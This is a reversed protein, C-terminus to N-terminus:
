SIHKIIHKLIKNILFVCDIILITCELNSILNNIEINSKKIIIAKTTTDVIKINNKNIFKIFNKIITYHWSKFDLRSLYKLFIDFYFVDLKNYYIIFTIIKNYLTEINSYHAEIIFRKIKCLCIYYHLKNRM